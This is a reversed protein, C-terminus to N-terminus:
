DAHGISRVGCGNWAFTREFAVGGPSPSLVYRVIYISSPNMAQYREFAIRLRSFVTEERIPEHWRGPDLGFAQTDARRLGTISGLDIRGDMLGVVGQM